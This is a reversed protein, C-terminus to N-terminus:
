MSPMKTASVPVIAQVKNISYNTMRDNSQYGYGELVKDQSRMRIFSDSYYLAGNDRFRQCRGMQNMVVIPYYTDVDFDIKQFAVKGFDMSWLELQTPADKLINVLNLM